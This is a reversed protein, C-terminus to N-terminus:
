LAGAILKRKLLEWDIKDIKVSFSKRKIKNLRKILRDMIEIPKSIKLVFEPAIHKVFSPVRSDFETSYSDIRPEEIMIRSLVIKIDDLERYSGLLSIEGYYKERWKYVKAYIKLKKNEVPINQYREAYSLIGVKKRRM